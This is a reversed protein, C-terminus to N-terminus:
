VPRDKRSFSSPWTDFQVIWFVWLAGSERSRGSEGRQVTWNAGSEKNGTGSLITWKQCVTWKCAVSLWIAVLMSIPHIVRIMLQSNMILMIKILKWELSVEFSKRTQIQGKVENQGKFDRKQIWPHSESGESRCLLSSILILKERKLTLPHM